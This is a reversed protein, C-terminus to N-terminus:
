PSLHCTVTDTMVADNNGTDPESDVIVPPNESPIITSLLLLFMSCVFNYFLGHILVTNRNEDFSFSFYRLTNRAQSQHCHGVLASTYM